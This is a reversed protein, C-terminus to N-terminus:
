LKTPIINELWDRGTIKVVKVVDPQSYLVTNPTEMNARESTHASNTTLLSYMLLFITVQNRM